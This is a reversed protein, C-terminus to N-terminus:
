ERLLDRSLLLARGVLADAQRIDDKRLATRAQDLFGEARRVTAHEEKSLTRGKVLALNGETERRRADIEQLLRHREAAPESVRISQRPAPPPPTVAPPSTEVRGAPQAASPKGPRVPEPEPEEPPLQPPLAEPDIPQPRPLLVKTQPVSLPEAAAVVPAPAPAPPPPPAAAAKGKKACGSLLAAAAALLIFGLQGPIKM